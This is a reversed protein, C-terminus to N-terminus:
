ELAAMVVCQSDSKDVVVLIEGAVVSLETAEQAQYDFEVLAELGSM